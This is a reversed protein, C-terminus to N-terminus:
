IKLLHLGVVKRFDRMNRTLLISGTFLATAAIFSDSLSLRYTRRTVGALRAIQSDVSIVSVADILQEILAIDEATLKSFSFLEAETVASIYVPM